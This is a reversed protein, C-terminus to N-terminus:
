VEGWRELGRELKGFREQVSWVEGWGDLRIGLWGFRDGFAGFREAVMWIEGWIGWVERWRELGRELEGFREWRNLGRDLAGFREGLAALREEISSVERWGDM